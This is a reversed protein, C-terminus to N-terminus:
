AKGFFRAKRPTQELGKNPEETKSDIWAKEDMEYNPDEFPKVYVVNAANGIEEKLRRSLFVGEEHFSSWPFDPNDLANREFRDIWKAFDAELEKSIKFITMGTKLNAINMGVYDSEDAADKLWAYPGFGFDAMIMITKDPKMQIDEAGFSM